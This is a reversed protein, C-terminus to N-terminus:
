EHDIRGREAGIVQASSGYQFQLLPRGEVTGSGFGHGVATARRDAEQITPHPIDSAAPIHVSVSYEQVKADVSCSDRKKEGLDTECDLIDAFRDDISQGLGVVIPRCSTLEERALETLQIKVMHLTPLATGHFAKKDAQLRDLAVAVPETARIYEELYFFEM